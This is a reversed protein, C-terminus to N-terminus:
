LKRPDSFIHCVAHHFDESTELALDEMFKRYKLQDKEYSCRNNKAIIIVLEEMSIENSDAIDDLINILKRRVNKSLTEVKSFHDIKNILQVVSVIDM